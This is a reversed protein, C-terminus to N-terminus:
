EVELSQLDQGQRELRIIQYPDMQPVAVQEIHALSFAPRFQKELLGIDVDRPLLFVASDGSGDKVLLLQKRIFRVLDQKGLKRLDFVFKNSKM